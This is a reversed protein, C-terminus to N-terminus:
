LLDVHLLLTKNSALSVQVAQVLPHRLATVLSLLLLSLQAM